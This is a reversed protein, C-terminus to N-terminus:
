REHRRRELERRIHDGFGEEPANNAIDNLYAMRHLELFPLTRDLRGAKYLVRDLRGNAIVRWDFRFPVSPLHYFATACNSCLVHYWRPKKVLSNIAEVYDLFVARLQEAGVVIRYLYAKQNQSYKTRRLIVDREDAALFILEQQRYLGRLLSYDQGKRFRVEISMCLRGDSGFDFVLVPHGLLPMQWVFFIVDVGKLNALDYTRAEYRPTFDELTRYEFNRVHEITILDGERVARPLVASSPVWDRDHSPKQRFWWGLFIATVGLLVAFPQWLPQWLAFLVLVGGAWAAAFLGGWKGGGCVDFCIAGATWLTIAAASVIILTTIFPDWLGDM